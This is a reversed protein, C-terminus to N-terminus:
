LLLCVTWPVQLCININGYCGNAVCDPPVVYTNTQLIPFVTNGAGCGVQPLVCVYVHGPELHISSSSVEFITFKEDGAAGDEPLSRSKLEPFETFLWHRDKFFRTTSVM